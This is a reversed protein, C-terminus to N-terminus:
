SLKTIRNNNNTDLWFDIQDAHYRRKTKSPKGTKTLKTLTYTSWVRGNSVVESITYKEGDNLGVLMVFGEIQITDEKNLKPQYSM